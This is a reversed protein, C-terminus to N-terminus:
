RRRSGSASSATTLATLATTLSPTFGSLFLDTPLDSILSKLNAVAQGKYVASSPTQVLNTLATALDTLRNVLDTNGLQGAAVAANGLATVGPAIVDVPLYLTQTAASAGFTATIVAQLLTNLPISADPTLTITETRSQGVALNVSTLGTLTLGSSPTASLKVNNEAVNGVDTITITDTAAVGPISNVSAPNNAVTVADIAPVTFTVTQTHTITKDTTSTATVQFTLVTGPAPLTSGPSPVLYLGMMGTQGAPVTLSTGSDLLTLGSPLNAFSLNYTDAAPGLNQSRRASRPRFNSGM